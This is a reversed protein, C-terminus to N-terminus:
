ADWEVEKSDFVPGNLCCLQYGTQTKVVCGKCAGLGCAMHEEVSVQCQIGATNAYSSLTRLMPAPGCALIAAYQVAQTNGYQTNDYQTNGNQTNGNQTSGAQPNGAQTNGAQTDGAQTSDRQTRRQANNEQLLIDTAYGKVTRGSGDETAIHLSHPLHAESSTSKSSIAQISVSEAPSTALTPASEASLTALASASEAPLTALALASEDPLVAQTPSKKQTPAKKQTLAEFCKTLAPMETRFGLYIDMQVGQEHLQRALYLLPAAGMGGGVLAVKDGKKIHEVEFGSGLPGLIKPKHGKPWQSMLKTGAGVVAYILDITGAQKDVNHLSIPRPLLNEGSDLYVMVFQGPRAENAIAPASLTMTYISSQTQADTEHSHAIIKAQVYKKWTM